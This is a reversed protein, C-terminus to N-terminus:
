TGREESKAATRLEENEAELRTVKALLERHGATVAERVAQLAAEARDAHRQAAGARVNAKLLSSALHAREEDSCRVDFRLKLLRAQQESMWRKSVWPM